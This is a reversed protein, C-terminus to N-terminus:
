GAGAVGMQDDVSTSLSGPPTTSSCRSVAVSGARVRWTEHGLSDLIGLGVVVATNEYVRYARYLVCPTQRLYIARPTRHLTDALTTAHREGCCAQYLVKDSHHRVHREKAVKLSR